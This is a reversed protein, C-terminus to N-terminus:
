RVRGSAADSRADLWDDVDSRRFLVRRGVRVGRPGDGRYRLAYVADPTSRLFEALEDVTLLEPAAM